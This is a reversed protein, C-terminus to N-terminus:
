VKSTRQEFGKVFLKSYYQFYGGFTEHLCVPSQKIYCGHIKRVEQKIQKLYVWDNKDTELEKFM